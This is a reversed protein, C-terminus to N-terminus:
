ASSKRRFVSRKCGVSASAVDIIPLIANITHPCSGYEVWGRFQVRIGLGWKGVGDRDPFVGIYPGLGGDDMPAYGM